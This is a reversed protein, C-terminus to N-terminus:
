FNKYPCLAKERDTKGGCAELMRFISPQPPPKPKSPAKPKEPIKMWPPPKEGDKLPLLIWSNTKTDIFMKENDDQYLMVGANDPEVEGKMKGCSAMQYHASKGDDFRLIFIDARTVCAHSPGQVIVIKEFETDLTQVIQPATSVIPYAITKDTRTGIFHNSERVIMFETNGYPVTAVVDDAFASELSVQGALALVATLGAVMKKMMLAM